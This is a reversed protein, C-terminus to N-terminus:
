KNAWEVVWNHAEQIQGMVYSTGERNGYLGMMQLYLRGMGEEWQTSCIMSVFILYCLVLLVERPHVMEVLVEDSLSNGVRVQIPRECLFNKIRNFMRGQVEADHLKLPLGEKWLMAYAKEIDLFVAVVAEENVIAKEVAIDM